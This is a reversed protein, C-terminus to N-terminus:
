GANTREGEDTQAKQDPAGTRGGRSGDGCSALLAHMDPESAAGFPHFVGLFYGPIAHSPSAEVDGFRMENRDRPALEPDRVFRFSGPGHRLCIRPVKPICAEPPLDPEENKDVFSSVQRPNM